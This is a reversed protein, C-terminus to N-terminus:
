AMAAVSHAWDPVDFVGDLVGAAWCPEGLSGDAGAACTGAVGCDPWCPVAGELAGALVGDACVGAGPVVGTAPSTGGEGGDFEWASLLFSLFFFSLSAFSSGSGPVVGTEPSTAALSTSGSFTTGTPPSMILTLVPLTSSTLATPLRSM